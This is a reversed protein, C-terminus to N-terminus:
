LEQEKRPLNLILAFSPSHSLYMEGGASEVRRRLNSLGGGEVIPNEPPRGNNTITVTYIDLHEVVEATVRNGGAHNVCNTVCERAAAIILSEAEAEQPLSGRLVLSVKMEGAKKRVEDFTGPVAPCDDSLYSVADKLIELQKGIDEEDGGSIMGSIAILSTGINNHIRMKLDLTEQERIRDTLREYMKRLKENVQQMEENKKRLRENAHYIETMDQATIQLFGEPESLNKLHFQWIKRDPFCHLAPDDSIRRVGSDEQPGALAKELEEATQPYGGMLCASLEGMKRNCLIIRGAADAFCVGTPLDDTAEKISYPSLQNKGQKRNYLIEALIQFVSVLLVLITLVFLPSKKEAPYFTDNRYYRSWVAMLVFLVALMVCGTLIQRMTKGRRIKNILVVMFECLATMFILFVLFIQILVRPDKM